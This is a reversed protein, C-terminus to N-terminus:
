ETLGVVTEVNVSVALEHYVDFFVLVSIKGDEVFVSISGEEVPIESDRNEDVNENLGEDDSEDVDVDVSGVCVTMAADVTVKLEVDLETKVDDPTGNVRCSSFDLIGKVVIPPMVPPTTAPSDNIM